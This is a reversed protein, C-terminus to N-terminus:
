YSDGCTSGAASGTPVFAMADFAIDTSGDDAADGINSLEVRAGSGLPYNGLYVWVDSGDSVSQDVVCSQSDEGKGAYIHYSAQDYVAGHSPLHVVVDYNQTTVEPTWTAVVQHLQNATGDLYNPPYVHTFWMHGDYGAGLQHLDIQGYYAAPDAGAPAGLRLTFKGGNSQVSCGLAYRSNDDLDYVVSVPSSSNHHTDNAGTFTECDQDYARRVAPETSNTAYSLSQTACENSACNAFTVQGHWWCADSEAPCPDGTSTPDCNNISTSCFVRTGPMTLEGGSASGFAPAAYASGDGQLQPTEVWGMVREEYSWDSPHSADGYGDRLFPDRDAPYAPNAPNNLWGVGWHGDNDSAAASDHYGSNYAWVALWWNEVYSPSGNNVYSRGATDTYIQNWKSVLINLGAAINAAYDTAVAVQQAHNFGTDGTHMNDTVQGIGYGCDSADYDIADIDSSGNGYYDAILPNGDDGPVAHWSAESLNSEQALIGLMVQAPVSGGGALGSLPFMSQPTYAPQGTKLYDAPRTVTLSGSVAQDVAWEVMNASPQFAQVMPDNRPVACSPTSVSPDTFPNVQASIENNGNLTPAKGTTVQTTTRAGGHTARVTVKMTGARSPDPHNLPQKGAATAQATVADELLLHGQRSIGRVRKDNSVLKLDPRASV